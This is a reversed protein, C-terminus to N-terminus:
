GGSVPPIIAIEDNRNIATQGSAYEQNVAIMYAPLKKLGPYQKELDTKLDSSTSGEFEIELNNSGFIQKAIGFALIRVKM